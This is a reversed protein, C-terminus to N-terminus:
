LTVCQCSYMLCFKNTPVNKFLGREEDESAKPIRMPPSVTCALEELCARPCINASLDTNSTYRYQLRLCPQRTVLKNFFLESQHFDYSKSDDQFGRYVTYLIILGIMM